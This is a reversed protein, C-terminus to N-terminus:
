EYKRRPKTANHILEITKSVQRNVDKIDKMQHIVSRKRGDSLQAFIRNLVPDQDLLIELVEPIDVGLPNPDEILEFRVLDGQSKDIKAVNKGSVIIFFNGDGLHNLGCQFSIREDLTCILRTQRKNTFQNVVDADITLYFYGGKRPELQCIPQESRFPNM